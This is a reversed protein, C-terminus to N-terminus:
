AGYAGDGFGLRPQQFNIRADEMPSNSQGYTPSISTAMPPGLTRRVLNIENDVRTVTPRHALYRKNKPVCLCLFDM